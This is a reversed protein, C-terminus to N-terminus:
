QPSAGTNQSAADQIKRHIAFERDAEEKRGSRSLAVALNYHGVPNEPELKVAMQLPSVAEPFRKESVLSIGLGLYAEAFSNDLKAARSFHEVAETWNSDQRALEGLVYEAGANQPDIKLEQEFNNKAEKAVGSDPNPKSLLLRGLRYHIGPLNPNNELIKRYEAAADDWKGQSELAEANLEHVQYSSPAVHLLDQSARIALDSYAHTAQYLVEPDRPFDRQLVQLFDVAEYPQNHTMACRLGSLGAKKKIEPAVAERLARKM